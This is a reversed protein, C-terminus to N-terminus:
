PMDEQPQVPQSLGSNAPVDDRPFILVDDDRFAASVADGPRWARGDGSNTALSRLAGFGPADAYYEIHGGLYVVDTVIAAFRGQGQPVLALREPRVTAYAPKGAMAGVTRGRLTAGGSAIFVDPEAGAVGAILNNDGLFQAVFLSGPREYLEDPTGVQEIRGANMVAIRDSMSMAEDQDHTVYVVTLGLRRQLARLEVQLHARLKRDLAGLPEDMLLVPPNFIIARAVAIRQQQGGSLQAPYAHAARELRVLDLVEAVRRDIETRPTGRMELPFALNEAVTMHPFLAYNQFVMGINRDQPPVRVVSAGDILVDGGSPDTFGALMMLTTTKGCGSPGLLTFFEGAAIELDLGDVVPTAGYTKRLGVFRLAGRRGSAQNRGQTIQAGASRAPERM